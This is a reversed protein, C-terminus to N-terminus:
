HCSDLLAKVLRLGFLVGQEQATILSDMGACYCQDQPLSWVVHGLGQAEFSPQAQIHDRIEDVSLSGSVQLYEAGATIAALDGTSGVSDLVLTAELPVFETIASWESAVEWSPLFSALGPVFPEAGEDVAVSALGEAAELVRSSFGKFEVCVRGQEDCLSIDLKQVADEAVSGESYRVWAYANSPTPGYVILSELAFPLMPKTSQGSSGLHAFALGISAQLASDMLGPHLVYDSQTSQLSSPVSLKALVQPRNDGDLGTYLAEIAQHGAGYHIGIGDFASYLQEVSLPSDVCLASLGKLDIVVEDVSELLRGQGQSYLIEEGAEDLSYIDYEIESDTAALVSIHLALSDGTLAAPRLWVVRNLEVVSDANLAQTLAARAMELHGVGPLIKAGQVQYDKFFFEDGSFRSTFQVDFATSTNEQLLPHLYNAQSSGQSSKSPSAEEESSEIWYREKSFPYTPLSIKHSDGSKFLQKYDLQYGQTYLEAVTSLSELIEVAVGSSECSAICENGYRKLSAQERRKGSKVTQTYIESSPKGDSWRELREVLEECSRVVTALRHEFHKRGCLLTFSIDGLVESKNQSLHSVLQQSQQKLQADSRASLVILYSVKATLEREIPPAEEIVMHANTGSFGFSSIAAMRRKNPAVEWAKLHTNVYFPSEEFNIAPNRKFTVRKM